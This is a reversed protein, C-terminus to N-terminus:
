KKAIIKVVEHIIKPTRKYKKAYQKLHYNHEDAAFHRIRRMAKEPEQLFINELFKEVAKYKEEIIRRNQLPCEMLMHIYADDHTDLYQVREITKEIDEVSKCWVFANENFDRTILPSGSYIPISHQEFPQVIKETVFGPYQISDCAITFKSLKLYDSKEKWSCRKVKKGVIQTNNLYSGPAVVTKYISLQEFLKERMQSASPHGYIFNAFYKKEQLIRYAQEESIEEPLWARGNDNYFAFPLRFYRDGFELFDFGIVYDFVTFDPSVNEGMFMIRVCDYKMYEFPEGRNSCIVFDPNESIEINFYKSLITTFFNKEKNFSKWFGCFNIKITQM